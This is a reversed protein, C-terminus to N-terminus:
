ADILGKNASKSGTARWHMEVQLADSAIEQFGLRKYLRRAPNGHDVSLTIMAAKAAAEQQLESLLQTAVGRGRYASSICLDVVRIEGPTHNLLLEGVPQQQTDCIVFDQLGAFQQVYGEIRARYQMQLIPRLQTDGWGLSAFKSANREVFLALLFSADEGCAIRLAHHVSKSDVSHIATAPM